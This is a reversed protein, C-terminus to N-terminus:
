QIGLKIASNASNVADDILYKYSDRMATWTTQEESNDFAMNELMPTIVQERLSSDIGYAYELILSDPDYNGLEEFSQMFEQMEDTYKKSRKESARIVALLDPDSHGLRCCDIFTTAAQVNKSGAPVLYGFTTYSYCYKDASPDRPTPVFFIDLTEDRAMRKAYDALM